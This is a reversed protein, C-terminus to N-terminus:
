IHQNLLPCVSEWLMALELIQGIGILWGSYCFSLPARKEHSLEVQVDKKENSFPPQDLRTPQNSPHGPDRFNPDITQLHTTEGVKLHRINPNYGM